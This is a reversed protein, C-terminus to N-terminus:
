SAISGPGAVLELGLESQDLDDMMSLSDVLTEMMEESQQVAVRLLGVVENQSGLQEELKGIRASLLKLSREIEGLRDTPEPAATATADTEAFRLELGSGTLILKPNMSTGDGEPNMNRMQGALAFLSQM